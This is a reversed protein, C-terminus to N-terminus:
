SFQPKAESERVVIGDVPDDDKLEQVLSARIRPDRPGEFNVKM